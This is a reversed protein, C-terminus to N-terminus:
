TPFKSLDHIRVVAYFPSWRHLDNVFFVIHQWM